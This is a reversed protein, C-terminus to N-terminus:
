CVSQGAAAPVLGVPGGRRLHRRVAGSHGLAGGGLSDEAVAALGVGGLAPVNRRTPGDHQPTEHREEQGSTAWAGYLKSIPIPTMRLRPGCRNMTVTLTHDDIFNGMNDWLHELLQQRTLIHGSNGILLKLLKYENPTIALKEDRRQATLLSFNIQLYGDTWQEQGRATHRRLAVEVRRILIQINFPKTIYDEAGIDFGNLVDTDLDNATLFIVPLNSKARKDGSM